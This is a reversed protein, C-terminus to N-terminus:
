GTDRRQMDLTRRAVAQRRRHGASAPMAQCAESYALQRGGELITGNAHGDLLVEVRGEIVGVTVKGGENSVRFITGIDRM